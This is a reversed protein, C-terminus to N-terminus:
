RLDGAGIGARQSEEMEAARPFLVNNELHIHRHLDRELDALREYLARYSVCADPPLQFNSTTKRIEVLTEAVSEHENMMMRIPNKVTGFFPTPPEYGGAAANELAEIYPFLVQEEKSMHPILDGNMENVLAAVRVTEPHNKGHVGAVKSSLKLLTDLSDRTFRHHADVIYKQLEALNRLAWAEPAEPSEGTGLARVLEDVDVGAALAAESLSQSGHCCYDINWREFVPIARPLEVALRGVATSKEVEM